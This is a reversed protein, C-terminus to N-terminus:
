KIFYCVDLVDSSARRDPYVALTSVETAGRTDPNARHLPVMQPLRRGTAARRKATCFQKSHGSRLAGASLCPVTSCRKARPESADAVQDYSARSESISQIQHILPTMFFPPSAVVQSGAVRPQYSNLRKSGAKAENGVVSRQSFLAWPDSM